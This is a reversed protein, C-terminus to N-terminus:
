TTKGPTTGCATGSGPPPRPCATPRVEKLTAAIQEEAIMGLRRSLARRHRSIWEFAVRALGKLAPSALRLSWERYAELAYLCLIWADNGRYVGDEDDVVLLEEPPDTHHLPPFRRRAEESGAPVFELELLAEQEELWRRCRVCFGCGADYLVTLRKM